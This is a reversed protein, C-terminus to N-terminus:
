QRLFRLYLTGRATGEHWAGKHSPKFAAQHHIGAPVLGAGTALDTVLRVLGEDPSNFTVVAARGPQLVRRLGGLVQGLGTAFAARGKGQARNEVVEHAVVQELWRGLRSGLADGALPRALWALQPYALEAYQVADGYPPDAFAFGVSEAPLSALQEAAPGQRLAIEGPSLPADVLRVRQRGALAALGPLLRRIVHRELEEWANQELHMPFIGLLHSSLGTGKNRWGGSNVTPMRSTAKVISSLSVRLATRVAGEEQDIAEAVLGTALWNRGTWLEDLVPRGRLAHRLQAFPTGDPYRLPVGSPTWLDARHRATELAAATAHDAATPAAEQLGCSGCRVFCLHLESGRYADGGRSPLGGCSPCRKAGATGRGGGKRLAHAPTVAGCGCAVHVSWVAHALEAAAGCCPCAAAYLDRLAGLGPLTRAGDGRLRDGVRRFGARVADVEPPAALLRALEVALPNIDIGIARRGLRAAAIPATGSGMFPDVVLDGPASGAEIWASVVGLDKRAEWKHIRAEPPHSAEVLREAPPVGPIPDLASRM